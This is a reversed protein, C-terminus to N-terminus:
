DAMNPLGNVEEWDRPELEVYTKRNTRMWWWGATEHETVEVVDGKRYKTAPRDITTFGRRLRVLRPPETPM